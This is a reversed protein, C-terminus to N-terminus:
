LPGGEGTEIQQLLALPPLPGVEPPWDAPGRPALTLSQPSVGARSEIGAPVGREACPPAPWTQSPGPSGPRRLRRCPRVPAVKFLDAATLEPEFFYFRARRNTGTV